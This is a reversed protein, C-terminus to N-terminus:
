LSVGLRTAEQIVWADAALLVDLDVTDGKSLNDKSWLPQLNRYNFCVMQHDERALDFAACPIIHDIHWGFKGYNDWSMDEAFRSELHARLYEATCGLYELTTRCKVSRSRYLVERIRSSLRRQVVKRKVRELLTAAREKKREAVAREVSKRKRRKLARELRKAVILAYGCEEPCEAFRKKHFRCIRPLTRM